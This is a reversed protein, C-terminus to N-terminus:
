SSLLEEHRKNFHGVHFELHKFYDTILQELPIAAEGKVWVNGLVSSDSNEIINLLLYNLNYWLNVLVSWKVNIYKQAKIWEEADYPPFDLLDDLQLRVFRQHNNAASDILHGVIESLAWKDAALRVNTKQDQVQLLEKYFTDIKEKLEIINFM